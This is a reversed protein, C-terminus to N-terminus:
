SRGTTSRRSCGRAAAATRLRRDFVVRVLPRVRDCERATLVPDDVLVTGSGVAVADVAARLRQTKRNAEPSTIATRQGPGGRRLADLSAAAKLM